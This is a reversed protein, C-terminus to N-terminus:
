NNSVNPIETIYHRYHPVKFKLDFNFLVNAKVKLSIGKPFSIAEKCNKYRSLKLILHGQFISRENSFFVIQKENKLRILNNCIPYRILCIFSVYHKKYVCVHARARVCVRSRM